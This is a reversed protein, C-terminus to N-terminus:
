KCIEKIVEELQEKTENEDLDIGNIEEILKTWEDYVANGYTFAAITALARDWSEGEWLGSDTEEYERLDNLLEIAEETSYGRDVITEHFIGDGNSYDNNYDDSAEGNEMLQEIIENMFYDTVLMKADEEALQYYTPEPKKDIRVSVHRTFDEIEDLNKTKAFNMAITVLKSKLIEKVQERLEYENNIYDNYEPTPEDNLNVGLTVNAYM